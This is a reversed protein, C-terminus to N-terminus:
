MSHAPVCTESSSTQATAFGDFPLDYRLDKRCGRAPLFFWAPRAVPVGFCPRKDTSARADDPLTRHHPSQDDFSREFLIYFEGDDVVFADMGQNKGALTQRASPCIGQGALHEIEVRGMPACPLHLSAVRRVKVSCAANKEDRITPFRLHQVAGQRCDIVDGHRGL